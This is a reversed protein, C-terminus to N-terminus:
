NVIAVSLWETATTKEWVNTISGLNAISQTQNDPYTFVIRIKQYWTTQTNVAIQDWGAQSIDATQTDQITGRILQFTPSPNAPVWKPILRNGQWDKGTISEQALGTMYYGVAQGQYLVDSVVTLPDPYTNTSADGEIIRLGDPPNVTITVPALAKTSQDAYTVRLSVQYDAPIPTAFLDTGSGLDGIRVPWTATQYTAQCTWKWKVVTPPNGDDPATCSCSNNGLFVFMSDPPTIGAVDARALGPALAAALIILRRFM